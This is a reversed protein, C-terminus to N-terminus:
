SNIGAARLFSDFSDYKAKHHKLYHEYMPGCQRKIIAKLEPYDSIKDGDVFLPFEEWFDTTVPRRGYRVQISRAYELAETICKDQRKKYYDDLSHVVRAPSGVAISNSPISKSVVSNAGIFVNDGITVGKLIMVNRGTSVNNGITVKGSSPLFEHGSNLFVKTVWDHTLITLNENFYCNSGITILSPRTFDIFTSHPRFSNGGGLKIGKNKLYCCFRINSSHNYLDEFVAIIKRIINM